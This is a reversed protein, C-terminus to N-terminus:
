YEEDMVEEQVDGRKEKKVWGVFDDIVSPWSAEENWFSMSEDNLTLQAFKLTENWMDKNVSKKWSSNLFESWWSLWPTNPSTWKVASLPSSFLLEWYVIAVDLPVAKQGSSKAITFTYKYIRTYLDKNSALERKITKIFAKQKDVTDCNREEWENVFGNRSMEGMTPAQVIELAALADLGEADVGTDQFYKMTGEVGVIDKDQAGAEQYRDFLKNLAPKAAPSTTSGIVTSAGGSYYAETTQLLLSFMIPPGQALDAPGKKLELAEHIRTALINRFFSRQDRTLSHFFAQHTWM